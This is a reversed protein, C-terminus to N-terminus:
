SGVVINKGSDKAKYLLDDVKKLFTNKKDNKIFECVGFSATIVDQFSKSLCTKEISKRIHQAISLANTINTQPLLIMFEEGGWRALIDVTRIHKSSLKALCILVEDGVDHGYTDNINKFDDIDYMIISFSNNYRNARQIEDDLQTNFKQRNYLGTLHDHTAEYLLEKSNVELKHIIDQLELTRENVQEELEKNIKELQKRLVRSEVSTSISEILQFLNLPKTAYGRVGLDIAKKLFNVDNHATTIVSPVTSDIEYIKVLMDLGNLKPMNIDTVVVDFNPLDPNKFHETFIELGLLGNSATIVSKVLKQLTKTTFERIDDEDEVYLIVIDKLIEKNM